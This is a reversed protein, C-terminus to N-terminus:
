ISLSYSLVSSVVRLSVMSFINHHLYVIKFSQVKPEVASITELGIMYSAGYVMINLNKYYSIM